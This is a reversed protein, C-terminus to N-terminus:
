GMDDKQTPWRIYCLLSNDSQLSVPVLFPILGKRNSPDILKDGRKHLLKLLTNLRLPPNVRATDKLYSEHLKIADQTDLESQMSMSSKRFYKCSNLRPVTRISINTKLLTVITMM